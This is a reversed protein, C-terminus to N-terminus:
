NNVPELKPESIDRTQCIPPLQPYERITRQYYKILEPKYKSDYTCTSFGEPSVCNPRDGRRIEQDCISDVNKEIFHKQMNKLCQCQWPNGAMSIKKLRTLKNLLEPTLFTLFNNQIFFWYLKNEAPFLNAQIDDLRNNSLDISALNKLDVFSKDEITEIVNLHLLLAELNPAGTFLDRSVTTLRNGHLLLGTLSPLNDFAEPEIYQINNDRLGLVVITPNEFTKSRLYPIKNDHIRAEKLKPINKFIGPEIDWM